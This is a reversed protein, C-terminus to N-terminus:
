SLKCDQTNVNTGSSTTSTWTRKQCADKADKKSIKKITITTTTSGSSSSSTNTCTCTRDKKCSAFSIALAAVALITMKKM